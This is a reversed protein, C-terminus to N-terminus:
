REVDNVAKILSKYMLIMFISNFYYTMLLVFLKSHCEHTKFVRNLMILFEVIFEKFLEESSDYTHVHVVDDNKEFIKFIM